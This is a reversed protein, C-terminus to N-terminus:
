TARVPPLNLNHEVALTQDFRRERIRNRYHHSKSSRMSTFTSLRYNVLCIQASIPYFSTTNYTTAQDIDTSASKYVSSEDDGDRREFATTERSNAALEGALGNM